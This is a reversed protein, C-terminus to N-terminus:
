SAHAESAWPPSEEPIVWANAASVQVRVSATTSADGARTRVRLRGGRELEVTLLRDTGLYSVDVIRGPWGQADSPALACAEPRILIWSGVSARAGPLEHGGRLRVTEGDVSEVELLNADGVLRAAATTRPRRYLVDPADHELLRGSLLLAVEDALSLAEDQDHTVLVTTIGTQRQLEKLEARLRERLRRDLNAFPEDLLLLKPEFVLARALAVRQQQGGSLESPRRAREASSLHVRDLIQEARRRREDRAVGRVALGFAVNDRASLHPFLAYSQFVM